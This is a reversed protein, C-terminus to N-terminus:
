QIEDVDDFQGQIIQFQNPPVSCASAHLQAPLFYYANNDKLQSAINGRDYPKTESEEDPEQDSFVNDDWSEEVGTGTSLATLERPDDEEEPESESLDLVIFM